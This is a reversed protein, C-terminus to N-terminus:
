PASGPTTPSGEPAKPPTEGLHGQLRALRNALERAKTEAEEIVAPPAKARFVPDQLKRQAKALLDAVMEREKRLALGEESGRSGEPRPLVLEASEVVLVARGESRGPAQAIVNLSGLRALRQIAERERGGALLDKAAATSPVVEGVPRADLPLGTDTRLTRLGRTVEQFVEMRAEAEPDRRGEEARPWHALTLSTGEHPLAKWLEETMHPAFPHLLRLSRELVFLATAQAAAQAEPSERGGLAEKAAEAYWDAMEHWLFGHLAGAARTFDYATLHGEVAEATATWRSLLWRDFLSSTPTLSPAGKPAAQGEPLNQQLLRALNWVKTLFNRASEMTTQPNWPGGEEVPTPFVLAFRFADAGWAQILELPDPSNGLHKSLKRGQKDTLIGTLYVAPFPVRGTFHLGGMIMRAVWFFVIDSGTVLVSVPYYATLDPTTAPWGLTAFPWLWSSFWTDLVDPDQRLTSSGCKACAKPASEYADYAHCDDCHWVPIEHGWIVQRSICWDQLNEMFNDYTKVWRDPVIRVDGQRVAAHAKAGMEKMNVFWQVSFRPEIPVNSRESYGVNHTYPEEKVLLGQSRLAEVVEARAKFREMGRFSEPVFEGTLHGRADLIERRAPLDPHRLAIEHDAVDHSPTVKLAGAGFTMDIATDTIIPITRETLPLRLSRGVWPRHRADEPHVAVAVDGFLTEPRTTAVVFGEGKAARDPEADPYRIYYLKGATETPIVELDSLATLAKPDWNVMREARYILGERYLHIFATKVAAKYAPDMTYVYRSWDLSFGHATLQRRIYAEKEQRWSEIERYFEEKSLLSVNVKKSELHKRVAMQTALGAHDVGPLWLTPIGKMRQWRCLIDQCTGGLSHGFTLVGTVNPPPLVITWHPGSKDQAPAKFAGLADWAAQWAPELTSPTFRPPISAPM